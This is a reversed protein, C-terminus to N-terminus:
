KKRKDIGALVILNFMQRMRSETRDDYKKPWDESKINSTAHTLTGFNDYRKYREFIIDAIVNIQNGWLKLKEDEVGMDDFCWLGTYYQKLNAKNKTNELEAVIAKCDLMMFGNSTFPKQAAELKEEIRNCMIMLCKMILTKGRGVPGFLYIGKYPNLKCPNGTFYKILESVKARNEVEMILEEQNVTLENEFIKWFFKEADEVPVPYPIIKRKKPAITSVLGELSFDKESQNVANIKSAYEKAFETLPEQISTTKNKRGNAFNKQRDRLDELTTGEYKSMDSLKEDIMAQTIVPEKKEEDVM